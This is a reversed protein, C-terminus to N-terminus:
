KLGVELIHDVIDSTKAGVSECMKQLHSNAKLDLHFEISTLFIGRRPHVVFNSKLYHTAGLHKHLNKATEELNIKQEKSFGMIPFTYVEQGRFGSVNHMFANKGTILEEILIGRHESRPGSKADPSEEHESIDAIADVLEPFTKAVHVGADQDPTLTKIIWPAGFKDHVEKAKRLAYKEVGGDFDPQYAPIIFHKPMSVGIEKLHEM